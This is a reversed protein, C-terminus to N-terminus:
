HLSLQFLNVLYYYVHVVSISFSCLFLLLHLLHLMLKLFVLNFFVSCPIFRRCFIYTSLKYINVYFHYFRKKLFVCVFVSLFFVSHSILINLPNKLCLFSCLFMSNMGGLVRFSYMHWSKSDTVLLLLKPDVFASCWRVTL